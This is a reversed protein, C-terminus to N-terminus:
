RVVIKQVERGVRVIYVGPTLAISETGNVTRAFAQKGTLNYVQVAQMQTTEVVLTGSLSYVRCTTIPQIGVTGTEVRVVIPGTVEDITVTYTTSRLPDPEVLQDNVYVNITESDITDDLIMKFTYPQGYEATGEGEFMIGDVTPFSVSYAKLYLEVSYDKEIPNLIYTSYGTENKTYETEVGDILLLVEGEETEPLFQLFLHGDEEIQLNGSTYDLLEIGAGVKLAVTYTTTVTYVKDKLDALKDGDLNTGESSFDTIQGDAVGETSINALSGTGSIDLSTLSSCGDLYLDELSTNGSVNVKELSTLGAVNLGTLATNDSYDLEKLTTNGSLDAQSTFNNNSLNLVELAELVKTEGEGVTGNLQPIHADDLGNNSLNLVKLKANESLDLVRSSQGLLNNSYDLYLLETNTKLDM